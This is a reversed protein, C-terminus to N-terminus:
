ATVNSAAAPTSHSIDLKYMQCSIVGGPSCSACSFTPKHKAETEKKQKKVIEALGTIEVDVLGIKV